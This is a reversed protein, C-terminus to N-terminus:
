FTYFMRLRVIGEDLDFGTVGEEVRGHQFMGNLEMRWARSFTRGLGLNLRVREAAFGEIENDFTHFLEAFAVAYFREASGIRFEPSRVQLQWRGRWATDGGRDGGLEFVRMELRLYNQILFGGPRPGVIRAGVWPRFEDADDTDPFFTHFWGIGGHLRLWPAAEYRASPNLFIQTFDPTSLAARLGYDGDYRFRDSFNYITAIDTWTEFYSSESYQAAIPDPAVLGGAFLSLFGAVLFFARRSARPMQM